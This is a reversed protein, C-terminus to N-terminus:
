KCVKIKTIYMYPEDDALRFRYLGYTQVLTTYPLSKLQDFVEPSCQDKTINGAMRVYLEEEEIM